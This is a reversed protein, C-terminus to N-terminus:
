RSIKSKRNNKEKKLLKMIEQNIANHLRSQQAPKPLKRLNTRIILLRKLYEQKSYYKRSSEIVKKSKLRISNAILENMYSDYLLNGFEPKGKMYDIKTKRKNTHYYMEYLPALIKHHSKNNLV